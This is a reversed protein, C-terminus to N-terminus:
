KYKRATTIKVHWTLKGDKTNELVNSLKNGKKSEIIDDESLNAEKCMSAFIGNQRFHETILSVCNQYHRYSTSIFNCLRMSSPLKAKILFLSVIM